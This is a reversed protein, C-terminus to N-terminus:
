ASEDTTGGGAKFVHNLIEEVSQPAVKEFQRHDIIIVPAAKCRNTCLCGKFVVTAELGNKELYERVIEVSRNNGRTFCASGMCMVIEHSVGDNEIKNM